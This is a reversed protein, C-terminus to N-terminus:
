QPFEPLAVPSTARLYEYLALATGPMGDQFAPWALPHEPFPQRPPGEDGGTRILTMQYAFYDYLLSAKGAGIHQVNIEPAMLTAGGVTDVWLCLDPREAPIMGANVAWQIAARHSTWMPESMGKTVGYTYDRLRVIGPPILPRVWRWWVPNLVHLAGTEAQIGAYADLFAKVQGSGILMDSEIQVLQDAKGALFRDIMRRRIKGPPYPSGHPIQEVSDILGAEKYRALLPMIRPDSSGDDIVHVPFGPNFGCVSGLTCALLEPRNYSLVFIEAKM